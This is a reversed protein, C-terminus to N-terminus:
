RITGHGAHARRKRMYKAESIFVDFQGNLHQLNFRVTKVFYSNNIRKYLKRSM